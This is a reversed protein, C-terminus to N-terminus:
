FRTRGEVGRMAGGEEGARRRIDAAPDKPLGWPTANESHIGTSEREGLEAMEAENVHGSTSKVGARRLRSLLDYAAEGRRGEKPHGARTM